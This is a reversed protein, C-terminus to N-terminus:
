ARNGTQQLLAIAASITERTLRSNRLEVFAPPHWIAPNERFLPPLPHKQSNKRTHQQHHKPQSTTVQHSKRAKAVSKAVNERPPLPSRFLWLFPCPQSKHYGVRAEPVLARCPHPVRCVCLCPSPQSKHYVVRAEPVLARCPHPVRCLHIGLREVAELWEKAAEDFKRINEQM